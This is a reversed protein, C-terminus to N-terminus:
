TFILAVSEFVGVVGAMGGLLCFLMGFALYIPTHALLPALVGAAVASGLTHVFGQLSSVM